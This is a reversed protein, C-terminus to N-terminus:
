LKVAVITDDSGCIENENLKSNHVHLDGEVSVFFEVLAALYDCLLRDQFCTLHHVSRRASTVVDRQPEEETVAVDPREHREGARRRFHLNVQPRLQGVFIPLLVELRQTRLDDAEPWM